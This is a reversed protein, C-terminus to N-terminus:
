GRLLTAAKKRLWAKKTRLVSAYIGWSEIILKSADLQKSELFGLLVAFRGTEQSEEREVHLHRGEEVSVTVKTKPFRSNNLLTGLKRMAKLVM